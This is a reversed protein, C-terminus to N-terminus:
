SASGVAGSYTELGSPDIRLPGPFDMLALTTPDFRTGLISFARDDQWIALGMDASVILRPSRQWAAAPALTASPATFDRLPTVTPHLVAPFGTAEVVDGPVELLLADGNVRVPIPWQRGDSSLWEGQSYRLMSGSTRLLAGGSSSPAGHAGRFPVRVQWPGCR